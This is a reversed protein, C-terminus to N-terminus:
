LKKAKNWLKQFDPPPTGTYMQYDCRYAKCTFTWWEDPGAQGREMKFSQLLHPGRASPPLTRTEVKADISHGKGPLVYEIMPDFGDHSEAYTFEFAKADSPHGDFDIATLYVSPECEICNQHQVFVVKNQAKQGFHRVDRIKGNLYGGAHPAVYGENTFRLRWLSLFPYGGGPAQPDQNIDYHAVILSPSGSESLAVLQLTTNTRLDPALKVVLALLEAFEGPECINSRLPVIWNKQVRVSGVSCQKSSIKATSIAASLQKITDPDRNTFAPNKDYDRLGEWPNLYHVAFSTASCFVMAAAAVLEKAGM